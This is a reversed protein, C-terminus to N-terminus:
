LDAPAMMRCVLIGGFFLALIPAMFVALTFADGTPTIVAAFVLLGLLFHRWAALYTRWTCIRLAQLFLMVLPMEFILGTVLTMSLFFGVTEKLSLKPTIRIIEGDMGVVNDSHWTLLVRLTLPQIWFYFFVCGGLFLVYSIPAFTHVYRKERPHLARAVFGWLIWLIVPAALFLGAVIDIKMGTFFQEGVETSIFEAGQIDRMVSRAPWLAVGVLGEEVFACAICFAAAVLVAWFLRKRLEDLHESLTMPRDGPPGDDDDGFLPM